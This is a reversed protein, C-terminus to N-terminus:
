KFNGIGGPAADSLGELFKVRAENLARAADPLNGKPNAAVNKFREIAARKSADPLSDFAQRPLKGKLVKDIIGKEAQPLAKFAEAVGRPVEVKVPKAFPSKPKTFRSLVNDLKDALSSFTRRTTGSVLNGAKAALPGLIAGGGTSLALEGPSVPAVERGDTLASSINAALKPALYDIAGATAGEVALAATGTLGLSGAAAPAVYYGGAVIGAATATTVFLLEADSASALYEDGLM